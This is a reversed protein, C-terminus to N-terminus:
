IPETYKFVVWVGFNDKVNYYRKGGMDADGFYPYSKGATFQGTYDGSFIQSKGAFKLQKATVSEVTILQTEKLNKYNAEQGQQDDSRSILADIDRQMAKDVISQNAPAATAASAATKQATPVATSVSPPVTGVASIGTLTAAPQASTAGPVTGSPTAALCGCLLCVTVIPLAFKLLRKM